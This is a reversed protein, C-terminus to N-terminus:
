LSYYSLVNKTPSKEDEMEELAINRFSSPESNVEMRMKLYCKNPAALFTYLSISDKPFCELLNVMSKNSIHFFGARFSCVEYSLKRSEQVFYDLESKETFEMQINIMVQSSIINISFM